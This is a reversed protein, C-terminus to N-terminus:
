MHVVTVPCVCLSSFFWERGGATLGALSFEVEEVKLGAPHKNASNLFVFFLFM